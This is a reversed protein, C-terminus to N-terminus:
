VTVSRVYATWAEVPIRYCVRRADKGAINVAQLKGEEILDLVHQQTCRLKQAVEFVYLVQRDKAFALSAFDM